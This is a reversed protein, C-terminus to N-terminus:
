RRHRHGLVLEGGEVRANEPQGCKGISAGDGIRLLDPARVTMSGLNCEHGVKAGLAYAAASLATSSGIIMALPVADVLAPWGGASITFGVPPPGALRGAILGKRGLRHRFEPPTAIAFALVSMEVAFPVSDMEDGTFFHYTFFPALWQAM